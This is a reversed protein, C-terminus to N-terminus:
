KDCIYKNGPEMNASQNLECDVASQKVALEFESVLKNKRSSLDYIYEDVTELKERDPAVALYVYVKVNRKEKELDKHSCFRSARGIVQELRPLNWYPEIIHVQRVGKFSVGEKISSSGLIIKLKSGNLNETRNYVEKIEEKYSMNEDGSWIAFRKHGEGADAYNSYGYAELVKVFSKLGAFEKFGSYVFVKGTSNEIKSMIKHFKTSYKELNGLIKMKTFSALGDDGIKKNPFVINSVYRTGIFFHNPMAGVNLTKLLKKKLKMTDENEENRLIAKYSSLQFSTMECRIYKIKMEPFVYSPAGKFYSIYGRISDKFLEVNKMSVKYDNNRTKKIDFFTRDFDNGVPLPNIPRLLNITLGIEYPKDFMPTASLLITRLDNPAKKLLKLLETYYTGEESVMNQIEDIILLSKNLKIKKKQVNEIFKNYSYIEYYKDIKKDSAKIIDKYEQQSPHLKSLKKRESDTLYETGACLSRLETRFNGKLSAPLVVIIKRQKKFVEGVRIAACTKGAGIRHYVLVGKYPTSPNVFASVFKQPLQLEYKVPNCFEKFSKKKQPIKYKSYIKNIKKYFDDNDIKPYSM